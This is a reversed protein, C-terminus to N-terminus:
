VNHGEIKDLRKHLASITKETGVRLGKELGRKEAEEIHDKFHGNKFASLDKAVDKIDNTVLGLDIKFDKRMARMYFFIFTGISVTGGASVFITPDLSM